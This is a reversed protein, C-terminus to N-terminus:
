LKRLEERAAVFAEHASKGKSQAEHVLTEWRKSSEAASSEQGALQADVLAIRNNLAAAITYANVLADFAGDPLPLMRAADWASHELPETAQTGDPSGIRHLNETIEAILARRLAESQRRAEDRQLRRAHDFALRQAIVAVLGGALIATGFRLVELLVPDM